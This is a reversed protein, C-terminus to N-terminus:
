AQRVASSRRASQCAVRRAAAAVIPVGRRSPDDPGSQARREHTRGCHSDPRTNLVMEVAQRCDHAEAVVEIDSARGLLTWLAAAVIAHDNANAM